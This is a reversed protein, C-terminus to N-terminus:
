RNDSSVRGVGEGALKKSWDRLIHKQVKGSATKPLENPTEDEGVFWVWAPANQHWSPRAILPYCVSQFVSCSSCVQPNMGEAVVRRALEKTISATHPERVLWAGVVEGYKSDPVAVVAAERIEPHATLVNEIQVPFLNQPLVRDALGCM